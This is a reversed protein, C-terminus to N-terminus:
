VPRKPQVYGNGPMWNQRTLYQRIKKGTGWEVDTFTNVGYCIFGTFEMQQWELQRASPVVHASLRIKEEVSAGEPFACSNVYIEKQKNSCAILFCFAVGLLLNDLKKMCIM